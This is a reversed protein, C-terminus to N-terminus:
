LPVGQLGVLLVAVHPQQALGEENGDGGDDAHDGNDHAGNSVLEVALKGPINQLLNAGVVAHLFAEQM